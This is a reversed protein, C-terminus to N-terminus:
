ASSGLLSGCDRNFILWPEPIPDVGSFFNLLIKRSVKGNVCQNMVVL